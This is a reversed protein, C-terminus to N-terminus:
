VVSKRDLVAGRMYRVGRSRNIRPLRQPRDHELDTNMSNSDALSVSLRAMFGGQRMESFARVLSPRDIGMYNYGHYNAYTM